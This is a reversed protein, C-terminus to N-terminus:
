ATNSSNELSISYLPAESFSIYWRKGDREKSLHLSMWCFPLGYQVRPCAEKVRCSQCSSLSPFTLCRLPKSSSHTSECGWCLQHECLPLLTCLYLASTSCPPHTPTLDQDSFHRCVFPLALAMRAFSSRWSNKVLHSLALMVMNIMFM